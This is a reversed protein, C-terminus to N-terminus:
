SIKTNSECIAKNLKQSNSLQKKHELKLNRIVESYLAEAIEYGQKRALDVERSTFLKIPEKVSM